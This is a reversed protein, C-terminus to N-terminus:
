WDELFEADLETFQAYLNAMGSPSEIVLAETALQAFVAQDNSAEQLATIFQCLETDPQITRGIKEELQKQMRKFNAVFRRRSGYDPTCYPHFRLNAWRQWADAQALYGTSSFMSQAWEFYDEIDEPLKIGGSLTSQMLEHASSIKGNWESELTEAYDDRILPGDDRVDELFVKVQEETVCQPNIHREKAGVIRAFRRESLIDKADNLPNQIGGNLIRWSMPDRTKVAREFGARWADYNSIGKLLPVNFGNVNRTQDSHSSETPAM